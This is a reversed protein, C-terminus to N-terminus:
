ETVVRGGKPNEVQIREGNIEFDGPGNGLYGYGAKDKTAELKTIEHNSLWRALPADGKHYANADAYCTAAYLGCPHAYTEATRELAQQPSEAEVFQTDTDSFFPAAFSNTVVFYETM